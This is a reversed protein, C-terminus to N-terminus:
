RLAFQKFQKIDILLEMEYQLLLATSVELIDNLMYDIGNELTKEACIKKIITFNPTKLYVFMKQLRLLNESPISVAQSLFTKMWLSVKLNQCNESQSSWFNRQISKNSKHIKCTQLLSKMTEWFKLSRKDGVNSKESIDTWSTPFISYIHIDHFKNM